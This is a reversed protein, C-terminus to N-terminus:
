RSKMSERLSDLFNCFPTSCQLFMTLWFPSSVKVEGACDVKLKEDRVNLCPKLVTSIIHERAKSLASEPENDERNGSAKLLPKEVSQQIEESVRQLDQDLEM